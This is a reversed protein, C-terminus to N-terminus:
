TKSRPQSQRKEAAKRAAEAFADRSQLERRCTARMVADGAKESASCLEDRSAARIREALPQGYLFPSM